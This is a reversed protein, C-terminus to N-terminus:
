VKFDNLFAKNSNANGVSYTKNLIILSFYWFVMYNYFLGTGFFMVFFLVCSIKSVESKATKYLSLFILFVFSLGVM